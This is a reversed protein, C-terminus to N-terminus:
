PAPPPYLPLPRTPVFICCLASCPPSPLSQMHLPPLAIPCTARAAAAYLHQALSHWLAAIQDFGTSEAQRDTCMGMLACVCVGMDTETGSKYGDSCLEVLTMCRKGDGSIGVLVAGDPRAPCDCTSTSPNCAGTLCDSGQLCHQKYSCRRTCLPGGCDIDTEGSSLTGDACLEEQSVCTTRMASPLTGPSCPRCSTAGVGSVQGDPCPLCSPAGPLPVALYEGGACPGICVQSRCHHPSRM